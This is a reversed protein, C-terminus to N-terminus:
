KNWRETKIYNNTFLYKPLKIEIKTPDKLNLVKIEGGFDNIIQKVVPLGVGFGNNNHQTVNEGRYGVQFIKQRDEELIGLGYDTVYISLFDDTEYGSVSTRFTIEPDHYKIANTLLNYFIAVFATEDIYLSSNPFHADITINDFSVKENRAIPIVITLSKKIIEKLPCRTITYRKILPIKRRIKSLYLNTTAQWKQFEAYYIINNLYPGLYAKKFTEDNIHTFLRHATKHISHAPTYFEHSLKSIFDSQAEEGLFYDIFLAIYNSAYSILDVDVDNFYDVIDNNKRNTKNILRLIGIVDKGNSPRFLPIVMMTKGPQTTNERWKEKHEKNKKVEKLNDYIRAQKIEAVKGTLGEGSQYFVDSYDKPDVGELGKTALLNYRNTYSDWIFFSAGDCICYKTYMIEIIPKFIDAINKKQGNKKYIQILDDMIQQKQLLLHRHLSSSIFDRIINALLELQEPEIHPDDTYSLKLMAMAKSNDDYYPIPIGIFFNLGLTDICGPSKHNLCATKPCLYYPKKTKSTVNLVEIIFCESLSHVYDEENNFKYNLGNKLNRAILSASQFGENTNNDNIGWLSCMSCDTTELIVKVLSDFLSQGTKKSTKLLEARLNHILTDCM